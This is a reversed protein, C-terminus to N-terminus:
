ITCLDKIPAFLMISTLGLAIPRVDIVDNAGIFSALGKYLKVGILAGYFRHIVLVVNCIGFHSPWM